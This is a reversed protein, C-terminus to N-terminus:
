RALVRDDSLSHDFSKPVDYFVGYGARVALDGSGRPSWSVGIRPAVNNADSELGSRSAGEVGARVLENRALDFFTFRDDADTVPHNWEYRLGLNLTLRPIVKWDDQLYGNWSSVRQRFPNDIATQITFTPFGLLMDAVANTTFAGLFNFQGRGFFGQIGSNSFRRYDLGAKLTHRGRAHTLQQVVQFTNDQRLIPQAINDSLNDFGAVNIAPFGVFDPETSLGPIGLREAIDNGANQQLVERRLRNFGFRGEWILRPSFSHTESVVLNQGRNLM